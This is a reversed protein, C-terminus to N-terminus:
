GPSADWEYVTLVTSGSVHLPDAFAIAQAAALDKATLLCAGGSNSGARFASLNRRM